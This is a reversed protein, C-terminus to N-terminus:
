DEGMPRAFRVNWVMHPQLNLIEYGWPPLFIKQHGLPSPLLDGSVTKGFAGDVFYTM